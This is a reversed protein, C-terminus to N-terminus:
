HFDYCRNYTASSSPLDRSKTACVITLGNCRLSWYDINCSIKKEHTLGKVIREVSAPPEMKACVTADIVVLVTAFSTIVDKRADLEVQKSCWKKM